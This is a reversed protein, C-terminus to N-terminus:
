KLQFNKEDVSYKEFLTNTAIDLQLISINYQVLAELERQRSDILADLGQKVVAATLRGRRLNRVLRYYYVESQKRAEVAKTYLYYSTKINESKSKIDDRVERQIKELNAKAKEVEFKANRANTKANTDNLPYSVTINAEWSPNAFKSSDSYADGVNEEYGLSNVEVGATVSPLNENSYIESQLEANEVSIKANLYDARNKFATNLLTEENTESYKQNIVQVESLKSNSDFNLHRLVLRISDEYKQKAMAVSSESSAVLANYYNLDYKESLGLRVNQAIINRLNVTEKLKRQANDLSSKNLALTWYDIIAQLVVGTMEYEIYLKQIQSANELMKATARDNRGFMNKLLEQQVSLFIVPNYYNYEQDGNQGLLPNGSMTKSSYSHSIGANITTGTALMQMISASASYGKSEKGSSSWMTEPYKSQNIGASGNLYTAYKSKFKKIDSDTMAYDYQKTILKLNRDLMIQIIQELSMKDGNIIFCYQEAPAIGINKAADNEKKEDAKNQAFATSCLILIIILTFYKKM